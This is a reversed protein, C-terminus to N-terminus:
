SDLEPTHENGCLATLPLPSRFLPQLLRERVLCRPCHEVELSAFRVRISLGCRSCNLFAVDADYRGKPQLGSMEDHALALAVGPVSESTEDM